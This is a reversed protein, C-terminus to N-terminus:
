KAFRSELSKGKPKWSNSLNAKRFYNENEADLQEGDLYWPTHRATYPPASRVTAIGGIRRAREHSIDSRYMCLTTDIISWFYRGDPTPHKWFRSEWESVSSQWEPLDDIRLSIGSKEAIEDRLPKSLVDMLDPPVGDLDLDCDTVCYFPKDAFQDVAGCLWPAHHGINEDLRILEHQCDTDYWELLPPWDSNNDVIVVRVDPMNALQDCLIRTTTLRNFVNVIVPIM